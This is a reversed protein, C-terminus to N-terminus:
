LNALLAEEITLFPFCTLASNENLNYVKIGRDLILPAISTIEKAYSELRKKFYEVNRDKYGEHWHTKEMVKFDYGLLYVKTAGKRKELEASKRCKTSCYCKTAGGEFDTGCVPCEKIM